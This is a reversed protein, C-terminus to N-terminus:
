GIGYTERLRTSLEPASFVTVEAGDADVDVRWEGERDGLGIRVPPLAMWMVDIGRRIM